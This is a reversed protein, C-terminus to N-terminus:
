RYDTANNDWRYNILNEGDSEIVFTGLSATELIEIGFDNLLEVTEEHPHGYDNSAACPIVAIEPSVASLFEKGTSTRSGHHGVKLVDADLYHAYESEMILNESFNEADGTFLFSTEGYTINLVVSMNNLDDTQKLPALVTMEIDGVFYVAGPKAPITKAGSSKVAHLFSEYAATTPTNKQSLKPIIVNSVSFANIVEDLHNIHDSHPHTAIVYDLTDIGLSKIHDAVSYMTDGGADILIAENATQLLACDGQGVDIFHVRLTNEGIPTVTGNVSATADNWPFEEPGSIFFAIIGSLVIVTALIIYTLLRSKPDSNTRSRQTRRHKEM